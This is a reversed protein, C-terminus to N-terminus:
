TIVSKWTIAEKPEPHDSCIYTKDIVVQKMEQASEKDFVTVIRLLRCKSCHVRFKRKWM